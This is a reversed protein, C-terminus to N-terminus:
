SGILERLSSEDGYILERIPLKRFEELPDPDPAYLITKVASIKMTWYADMLGKYDLHIKDLPETVSTIDTYRVSPYVTSASSASTTLDVMLTEFPNIASSSTVVPAVFTSPSGTEAAATRKLVGSFFKKGV